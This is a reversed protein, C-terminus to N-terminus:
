RLSQSLGMVFHVRFLMEMLHWLHQCAFVSCLLFSLIFLCELLFFSSCSLSRFSLSQHLLLDFQLLLVIIAERSCILKISQNVNAISLLNENIVSGDNITGIEVRLLLMVMFLMHLLRMLSLMVFAVVLLSNLLMHTVLLMSRVLNVFLVVLMLMVFDSMFCHILSSSLSCTMCRLRMFSSDFLVVLMLMLGVLVNCGVMAFGVVVFTVGGNVWFM